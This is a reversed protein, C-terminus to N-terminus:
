TVARHRLSLFVAIGVIVGLVPSPSPVTNVWLIASFRDSSDIAYGSVLIENGMTAVDTAESFRFEPSLFGHLDLASESTGSWFFAHRTNVSVYAGGVQHSGDTAVSSSEFTNAPAISTANGSTLDWIAARFDYQGVLQTAHMGFITSEHQAQKPHLNQWTAAAGHWIAAESFNTSNNLVGGAQVNGEIAYASAIHGPPTLDVWQSSGNWLAAHMYFDYVFGVQSNGDTDRASSFQASQPHL